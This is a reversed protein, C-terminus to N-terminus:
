DAIVRKTIEPLVETVDHHIVVAARDDLYTPQFNIIILKAGHALAEYPLDSVPAVELSSGVVLIVDAKTAAHRAQLLPEVPLQEGFLIVDPKLPGGCVNCTPVTDGDMLAQMVPQADFSKYCRVCTASRIHGHVELVDRSMAAQHLGDINQTIITKLKGAAELQALAYHAPNPEANLIKGALPRVWDYFTEPHQRFAIISAVDMPNVQNWLGSGPSRFDPIGSPTSIGAGTLAIAYSAHSLLQSATEIQAYFDTM